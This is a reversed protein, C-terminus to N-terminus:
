PKLEKAAEKLWAPMHARGGRDLRRVEGFPGVFWRNWKEGNKVEVVTHGAGFTLWIGADRIEIAWYPGPKRDLPSPPMHVIPHFVYGKGGTHAKLRELLVEQMASLRYM